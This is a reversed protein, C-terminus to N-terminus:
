KIRLIHAVRKAPDLSVFNRAGHWLFVEGTLLDEVQYWTNPPIGLDGTPVDIWGSQSNRFDTTVVVLV